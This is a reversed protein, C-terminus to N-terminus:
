ESQMPHELQAVIEICELSIEKIKNASLNYAVEFKHVEEINMTELNRVVKYIDGFLGEDRLLAGRVEDSININDLLEEVPLGFLTDMLSLAGVMFAEGLMNSGAQPEVEKLIHEMLETRNKVMLMLPSTETFSSVSKSYIMLMLWKALQIRGILVIVDHISSIKKRFHFAASNIFQLLQVVIEPNNEFETALEDINVDEMLLNYLKFVALRSPNYEDNELIKPQAFYYGEFADCGLISAQKYTVEDEIKVGIITIAKSKLKQVIDLTYDHDEIFIKIYSFKDLVSEYKTLTHKQLKINDLALIYGKEKLQEIREIIRENLEMNSFLSFVFFDKPISFIIDNLLFKEDIKIFAKKDGLLKKTGFKNLISSIVSASAHRDNNIESQKNANRYLIEYAFINSDVDLIPQRAIYVQEM